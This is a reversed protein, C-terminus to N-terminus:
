MFYFIGHGLRRTDFAWCGRTVLSEIGSLALTSCKPWWVATNPLTTSHLSLCRHPASPGPLCPKEELLSDADAKLLAPFLFIHARRRETIGVFCCCFHSVSLHKWDNTLPQLGLGCFLLLCCLHSLYAPLAWPFVGTTAPASLRRFGSRVPRSWPSSHIWAGEKLSFNPPSTPPSGLAVRPLTSFCSDPVSRISPRSFTVPGSTPTLLRAGRVSHCNWHSSRQPSVQKLLIWEVAYVHIKLLNGLFSPLNWLSKKGLFLGRVARWVGAFFQRPFFEVWKSILLSLLSTLTIQVCTLLLFFPLLLSM